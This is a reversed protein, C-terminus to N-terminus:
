LLRRLPKLVPIKPLKVPQKYLMKDLVNTNVMIIIINPISGTKGRV